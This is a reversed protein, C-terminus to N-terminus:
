WRCRVGLGGVRLGTAIGVVSYITFVCLTVVVTELLLRCKVTFCVAYKPYMCPKGEIAANLMATKGCLYGAVGGPCGTIATTNGVSTFYVGQVHSMSDCIDTRVVVAGGDSLEVCCYGTVM